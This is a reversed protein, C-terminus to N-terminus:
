KGSTESNLNFNDIIRFIFRLYFVFCRLIERIRSNPLLKKFSKKFYLRAPNSLCSIINNNSLSDETVAMMIQPEEIHM